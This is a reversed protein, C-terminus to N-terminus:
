IFRAGQKRLETLKDLCLLANHVNEPSVYKWFTGDHRYQVFNSILCGHNHKPNKGMWVLLRKKYQNAEVDLKAQEVKKDEATQDPDGLEREVAAKWKDFTAQVDKSLELRVKANNCWNTGNIRAFELFLINCHLHWLHPMGSYNEDAKGTDPNLDLSQLGDECIANYHRKFSGIVRDVGGPSLMLKKWGHAEYKRAGFTLISVAGELLAEPLLQWMLKDNDKKLTQDAM